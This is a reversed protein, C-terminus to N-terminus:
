IGLASSSLMRLDQSFLPQRCCTREVDRFLGHSQRVGSSWHQFAWGSHESGVQYCYPVKLLRLQTLNSFGHLCENNVCGPGHM